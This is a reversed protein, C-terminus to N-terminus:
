LELLTQLMDNAVQIVRANAAYAQEILLLDQMEKDTDVGTQALLLDSVLTYQASNSSQISEFRVRAQGIQSSLGAVLETASFLGTLGGGLDNNRASTFATVLNNALASQGAPGPTTAGIGDRLRWIAGGQEPDLASNLSLGAAIGPDSLAAGNTTFLGQAGPPKTPDLADDSFRTVLDAAILDLQNMFNPMESDRVEFLGAFSGSRLASYSQIGPTIEQGDVFLGSLQGGALSASGDFDNGPTFSLTRPQGAYLFVGEPTMLDIAGNDRPVRVVPMYEAIRDVVRNREDLLPAADSTSGNLATIQKNLSQLDQLAQNVVQVGENVARDSQARMDTAADYLGTLTSIIERGNDLVAMQNAASEPAQAFNQLSTEFGAFAQFLGFGSDPTGMQASISQWAKTLITSRALSAGMDRQEALLALDESRVIGRAYVGAGRGALITEGVLVSRRVYGPTSANSINSAVLDARLANIQLGTQANTIARTLSM